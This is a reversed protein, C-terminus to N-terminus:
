EQLESRFIIGLYYINKKPKNKQKKKKEERPKDKQLIYM